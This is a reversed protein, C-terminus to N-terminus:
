WRSKFTAVLLTTSASTEPAAGPFLRDMLPIFSGSHRYTVRCTVPSSRAWTGTVAVEMRSTDLRFGRLTEIAAFRGQMRGRDPNLTEVSAIACDYAATDVALRVYVRPGFHMVGLMIVLFFMLVLAMEYLAQGRQKDQKADM